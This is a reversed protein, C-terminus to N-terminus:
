MPPMFWELCSLFRVRAAASARIADSRSYPASFGGPRTVIAASPPHPFDRATVTLM